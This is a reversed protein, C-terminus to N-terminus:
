TETEEEGTAVAYPVTADNDEQMLEKARRQALSRWYAMSVGPAVGLARDWEGLLILLECFQQLNGLRVEIAAAERLSDERTPAGIGGGGYKSTRVM